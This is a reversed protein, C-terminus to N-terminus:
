ALKGFRYVYYTLLFTEIHLYEDTHQRNFSNLDDHNIWYFRSPFRKSFIKSINRYLPKEINLRCYLKFEVIYYKSINSSIINRYTGCIDRFEIIYKSLSLSINQYETLINNIDNCFIKPPLLSTTVNQERM